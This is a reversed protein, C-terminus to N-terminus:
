ATQARVLYGLVFMEALEKETDSAKQLMEALEAQWEANREAM